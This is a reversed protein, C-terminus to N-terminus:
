APLAERNRAVHVRAHELAERITPAVHNRHALTNLVGVREILRRHQPRV